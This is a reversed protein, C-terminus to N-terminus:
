FSCQKLLTIIVACLYVKQCVTLKSIKSESIIESNQTQNVEQMAIIDPHHHSIADAFLNLKSEYNKEILSHTNITLLKM